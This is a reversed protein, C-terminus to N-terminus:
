QSNTPNSNSQEFSRNLASLESKYNGKSSNNDAKSQKSDKPQKSAKPLVTDKKKKKLYQEFNSKSKAMSIDSEDSTRGM